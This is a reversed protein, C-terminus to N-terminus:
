RATIKRWQDLIGKQNEAAKVADFNIAKVQKETVSGAALTAKPHLPVRKVKTMLNQGELSLMYDIFKKGAEQNPSNAVLAIAGTETATGDQPIVISVPYGSDMGKNLIDQSFAIGIAVEGLGVQTVAASGSKNYHHIQGDLKKLYDWGKQEGMKSLLASVVTYATGSTYPYAMSIHGKFEPKLLDDWTKPKQLKKEAFFKDNLAFGIAGFYIGTYSWDKDRFEDKLKFDITPKYTSLLGKVKAAHFEPNPGGFWVTAQPNKKEAEMRAITEGASLRVYKVQIGTKATFANTYTPIEAQDLASYIVLSDAAQASLAGLFTLIALIAMLFYRHIM